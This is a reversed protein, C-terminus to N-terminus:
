YYENINVPPTPDITVWSLDCHSKILPIADLYIPDEAMSMTCRIPMLIATTSRDLQDLLALLDLSHFLTLDLAMQSEYSTVQTAPQPDTFEGAPDTRRQKPSFTMKIESLELQKALSIILARWELRSEKGVLGNTVMKEYNPRYTETWDRETRIRAVDDRLRDMQRQYALEDAARSSRLQWAMLMIVLGIALIIASKILARGLPDNRFKSM